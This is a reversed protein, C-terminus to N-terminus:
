RLVYRRLRGMVWYSLLLALLAFGTNLLVRYRGYALIAAFVYLVAVTLLLAWRVLSREPQSVWLLGGFFSLVVIALFDWGPALPRITRPQLLTNIADAHLEFGYREETVALGRRVDFSESPVEVGVVVIKGNLEAAASQDGPALIREYAFRREPDRLLRRPTFEIFRNAVRDGTGLVGCFKQDHGLEELGSIGIRQPPNAGAKVLVSREDEDLGLTTWGRYAAVAAFSLSPIPDRKPEGAKDILVPMLDASDQTEGLCLLGWNSVVSGLAPAIEPRGDPADKVGVVVATGRDKAMRIAESFQQDFEKQKPFYMDFVIVKAGAQSLKDVLRAHDGRWNADLLPRKFHESTQATMSVLAIRESFSRSPRAVLWTYSRSKFARPLRDFLALRSLGFLSGAILVAAIVAAKGLRRLRLSRLGASERRLSEGVDEEAGPENKLIEINKERTRILADTTDVQEPARSADKLLNGTVADFLVSEAARTFLVPTGVVRDDPFEQLLNNRALSVAMEVRGKTSSQFIAHYFERAFLIAQDDGIPYQMAIVAPVGRRVLQSAMGVFPETSSVEAGKCSNLLVLKMTQHNLFLGGFQQHDIPKLGGQGDNLLLFPLNNQFEGHGIFHFVHFQELLADSIATRTVEGELLRTEVQKKLGELAGSLNSMETETSLGSGEPIAVLIRLPLRVELERILQPLELYRVVPTETSTGLFCDERRSYLFEWPLAALEPAEIRLRIRIGEKRCDIFDGRCRQFLAEINGDKASFVASYLLSGFATLLDRDTEERALRARMQRIPDSDPDFSSIDRAEGHPQCSARLPYGGETRNDIWLDFDHYRV